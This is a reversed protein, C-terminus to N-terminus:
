FAVNFIAATNLNSNLIGKIAVNGYKKLDFAKHM